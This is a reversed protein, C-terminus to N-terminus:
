SDEGLQIRPCSEALHQFLEKGAVGLVLATDKRQERMASHIGGVDDSASSLVGGSAGTHM